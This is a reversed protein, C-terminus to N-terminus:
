NIDVDISYKETDEIVLNESGESRKYSVIFYAGETRDYYRVKVIDGNCDLPVSNGKGSMFLVDNGEFVPLREIVGDSNITFFTYLSGVSSAYQGLNFDIRGDDNYDQLALEFEPYYFFDIGGMLSVLSSSFLLKKSDKVTIEFDGTWKRGMGAWLENDEIYQGDKLIIEIVEKTNDSNIDYETHSIVMDKIDVHVSEKNIDEEHADNNKDTKDEEVIVTGSPTVTDPNDSPNPTDTNGSCATLLFIIALLASIFLKKM